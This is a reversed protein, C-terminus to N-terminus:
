GLKDEPKLRESEQVSDESFDVHPFLKKLLARPSCALRQLASNAVVCNRNTRGADDALGVFPAGCHLRKLLDQDFFQRVYGMISLTRKDTIRRGLTRLGGKVNESDSVWYRTYSAVRYDLHQYYGLTALLEYIYSCSGPIGRLEADLVASKFAHLEVSKRLDEPVEESVWLSRPFSVLIAGWGVAFGDPIGLLVRTGKLIEATPLPELPNISACHM